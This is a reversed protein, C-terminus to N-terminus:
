EWEDQITIDVGETAKELRESRIPLICYNTKQGAKTVNGYPVFTYYDGSGFQTSGLQHNRDEPADYCLIRQRSNWYDSPLSVNKLLAVVELKKAIRYRSGHLLVSPRPLDFLRVDTIENRAVYFKATDNQAIMIEDPTDGPYTGGGPEETPPEEEDDFIIPHYCASLLCAAFCTTFLPFIKM